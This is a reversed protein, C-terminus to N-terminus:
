YEVHSCVMAVCLASLPKLTSLLQEDRGMTWRIFGLMKNPKHHEDIKKVVCNTSLLVDM